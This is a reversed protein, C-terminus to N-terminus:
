MEDLPILEPPMNVNIHGTYHLYQLLSIGLIIGTIREVPMGAERFAALARIFEPRIMDMGQAVEDARVATFFADLWKVWDDLRFNPLEITSRYFNPDTQKITNLAM